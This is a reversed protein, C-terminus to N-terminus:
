QTVRSYMILGISFGIVLMVRVFNNLVFPIITFDNVYSVVESATAFDYFANGFLACVIILFVYVFISLFFFVPHTPIQFALVVAVLWLLVIITVFLGDFLAVYDGKLDNVIDKGATADMTSGDRQNTITDPFNGQIHVNVKSIMIYGIIFLLASVFAIFVLFFVDEFSGRKNRM